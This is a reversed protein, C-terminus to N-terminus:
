GEGNQAVTALISYFCQSLFAHELHFSCRYADGGPWESCVCEASCGCVSALAGLLFTGTHPLREESSIWSVGVKSESVSIVRIIIM